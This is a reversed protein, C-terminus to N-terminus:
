FGNRRGRNLYAEVKEPDVRWAYANEPSIAAIISEVIQALHERDEEELDAFFELAASRADTEDIQDDVIRAVLHDIRTRERFEISRPVRRTAVAAAYNKSNEVYGDVVAEAILSPDGLEYFLILGSLYANRDVGIFSIPPLGKWLLPVNSMLRGMRKNGDIFAQLYSLGTLLVFSAEFPDEVQEAKWLLQGLDSSLQYADGEPRYSSGQIRVSNGRVRGLDEPSILDRLLMAHIRSAFKQDLVPRGVNEILEDIAHKHNLIMTAEELDHGTAKQGYQLLVETDLYSYTNGELSSSAWALDILFRQAIERSYTSADLAQNVGQAALTMRNRQEVPLWATVNPIYGGIRHPEYPKEPRHHPPKAFWTAAESLKYLSSRTEGTKEVIDNEILKAMARSITPQSVSNALKAIVDKQALGNPSRLLLTVIQKQLDDLQRLAIIPHM